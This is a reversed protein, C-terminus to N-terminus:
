WILSSFIKYIPMANNKWFFITQYHKMFWLCSAKHGNFFQLKYIRHIPHSLSFYFSQYCFTFCHPWHSNKWANGLLTFLCIQLKEQSMFICQNTLITLHYSLWHSIEWANRWSMFFYICKRMCIHFYLTFDLTLM